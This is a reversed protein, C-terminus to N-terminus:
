QPLHFTLRNSETMIGLKGVRFAQLFLELYYFPRVMRIDNKMADAAPDNNKEYYYYSLSIAPYSRGTVLCAIYFFVRVRLALSVSRKKLCIERRSKPLPMQFLM